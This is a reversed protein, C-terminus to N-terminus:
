FIFNCKIKSKSCLHLWSGSVRFYTQVSRLGICNVHKEFVRESLTKTFLDVLNEEYAIKSSDIVGQLNSDTYGLIGLSRTSYVM